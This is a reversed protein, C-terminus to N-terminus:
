ESPSSRPSNSPFVLSRPFLSLLVPSLLPPPLLFLFFSVSVRFSPSSAPHLPPPITFLPHLLRRFVTSSHLFSLLIALNLQFSLSSLLSFFVRSCSVRFHVSIPTHFVAVLCKETPASLYFLQGSELM